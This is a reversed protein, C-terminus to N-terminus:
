VLTPGFQGMRGCRIVKHKVFDPLLPTLHELTNLVVILQM